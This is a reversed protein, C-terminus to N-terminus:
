ATRLLDVNTRRLTLFRAPKLKLCRCTAAGSSINAGQSHYDWTDGERCGSVATAATLVRRFRVGHDDADPCSRDSSCPPPDLRMPSSESRFPSIGGVSERHIRRHGLCHTSTGTRAITGSSPRRARDPGFGLRRDAYPYLPPHFCPSRLTISPSRLPSRLPSQLDTSATNPPSQLRDFSPQM